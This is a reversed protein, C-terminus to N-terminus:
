RNLFCKCGAHAAGSMVEKEILIEQHLNYSTLICDTMGSLHNPGEYRRLM